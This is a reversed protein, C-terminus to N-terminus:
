RNMRGIFETCQADFLQKFKAALGPAIAEVFGYRKPIHARAVLAYMPEIGGRKRAQWFAAEASASMGKVAQRRGTRSGKFVVRYMILTGKKTQQIFGGHQMVQAPWDGGHIMSRLTPRAGKLPVALYKGFALKTGGTEQLEMYKNIDEIAAEFMQKTAPRIRIGSRAWGLRRITFQKPLLAWIVPQYSKVAKTLNSYVFFPIQNRGLDDLLRRATDVGEVHIRHIM